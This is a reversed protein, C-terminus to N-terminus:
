GTDRTHDAAIQADLQAMRDALSPPTWTEDRPETRQQPQEHPWAPGTQGGPLGLLLPPQQTDTPREREAWEIWRIAAAEPTTLWGTSRMRRVFKRTLEQLQAGTLVPRGAATRASQAAAITESNPQWTEPILSLEDPAQARPRDGEERETGSSPRTPDPIRARPAADGAGDHSADHSADTSADVDDGNSSPRQGNKKERWRQQRATKAKRDARVQEATPNYEHYDHIRWGVGSLEEWLGCNVLEEARKRAARVDGVLRLEATKIVGDTLNEASWCIASVYLRFAADSLLRVKRHSPFRDDLRVWPM